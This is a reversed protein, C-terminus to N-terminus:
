GGFRSWNSNREKVEEAILEKVAKLAYELDAEIDELANPRFKFNHVASNIASALNYKSKNM